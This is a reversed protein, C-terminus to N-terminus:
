KTKEINDVYSNFHDPYGAWKVLYKKAGSKKDTVTKLVKEIEYMEPLATPKLEKHYVVGEISCGNLDSIWYSLPLKKDIKRITFIEKTFIPEYSKQFVGEAKNLLLRVPTGVKFVQSITDLNKLERRSIGGYNKFKQKLQIKEQLKIEELDTLNHVKDPTEYGLGKHSSRNYTNELHKLIDIYKLTNKQTFYKYMKEKVTRVAREAISCKFRRNKVSYRTIGFKDYVKQTHRGCFEGGMDSFVFAYKHSSKEFFKEMVKACTLNSKDKIPTLWLKRSFCDIMLFIYRHKKNHRGIKATLDLLDIGLILGPRCVKIPKRVFNRPVVGHFSWGSQKKLFEEVDGKSIDKRGLKRAHQFLKGKGSYGCPNELNEYLKQLFDFKGQTSLRLNQAM